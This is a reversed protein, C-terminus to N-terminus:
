RRKERVSALENTLWIKIDALWSQAQHNQIRPLRCQPWLRIRRERMLPRSSVQGDGARRNKLM